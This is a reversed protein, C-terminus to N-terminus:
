IVDLGKLAEAVLDKPATAHEDLAPPSSPRRTFFEPIVETRVYRSLYAVTPNNFITASDVPRGLDMELRNKVSVADLSTLGLDFYSEHRPLHDADDMMLVERFRAEIASELLAPRESLPSDTLELILPTPPM